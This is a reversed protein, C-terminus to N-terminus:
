FNVSAHQAIHLFPNISTKRPTIFILKTQDKPTNHDQMTYTLIYVGYFKFNENMQISSHLKTKNFFIKANESVFSQFLSVQMKHSVILQMMTLVESPFHM